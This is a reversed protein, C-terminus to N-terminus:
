IYTTTELLGLYELTRRNIKIKLNSNILQFIKSKIQKKLEKKENLIFNNPDYGYEIEDFGLSEAIEIADAIEYINEPVITYKYIIRIDSNYQHKLHIIKKANDIVKEYRSGRNVLEHTKKTAANISIQVWKSGRVIHEAWEENILMGNTILNVKKNM